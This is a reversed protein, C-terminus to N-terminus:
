ENKPTSAEILTKYDAVFAEDVKTANRIVVANKSNREDARSTFNFSRTVVIAQDIV